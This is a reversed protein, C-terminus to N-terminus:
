NEVKTKEMALAVAGLAAADEGLQGAAFHLQAVHAPLCFEKLRSRLSQMLSDGLTTVLSGGVVLRSPNLITLAAGLGQALRHAWEDCVSRAAFNHNYSEWIQQVSQNTVGYSAARTLFSEETCYGSLGGRRGSATLAGDRDICLAGIEGAAGHAGRVIKGNVYAVAGISRGIHVYLWDANEGRSDDRLAGFHAEGVAECVFRTEAKANAIQLHKRLADPVDFGEWGVIQASKLGVGNADLPAELSLAVAQIQSVTVQARQLTERAASMAALWQEPTGGQAPLDARLALVARGQADALITAVNRRALDIGLLMLWEDSNCYVGCGVGFYLSAKQLQRGRPM